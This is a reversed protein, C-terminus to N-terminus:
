SSTTLGESPDMAYNKQPCESTYDLGMRGYVKKWYAPDDVGLSVCFNGFSEGTEMAEMIEKTPSLSPDFASRGQGDDHAFGLMVQWPGAGYFKVDEAFQSLFDDLQSLLLRENAIHLWCAAYIQRLDAGKLLSVPRLGRSPTNGLADILTSLTRVADPWTMSRGGAPHDEQLTNRRLNELVAQALREQKEHLDARLVEGPRSPSEPPAASRM